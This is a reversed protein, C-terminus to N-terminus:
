FLTSVFKYFLILLLSVLYLQLALLAFRTWKTARLQPVAYKRNVEAVQELINEFFKKIGGIFLGHLFSGM